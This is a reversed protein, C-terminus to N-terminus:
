LGLRAKLLIVVGSAAAVAFSLIAGYIRNRITEIEALCRKEVQSIDLQRKRNHEWLLDIQQWIHRQENEITAQFRAQAIPDIGNQM